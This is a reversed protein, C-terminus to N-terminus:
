MLDRSALKRVMLLAMGWAIAGGVALGALSAWIGYSRVLTLSGGVLHIGGLNLLVIVLMLVAMVLLTLRMYIKGAMGMEMYMFGAGGALSFGLWLVAAQVFETGTALHELRVPLYLAAFYCLAMPLLTILFVLYRAAVIEKDTVPLKRYFALKRSFADTWYHSLYEKTFAFGLTSTMSVTVLDAATDRIIRIAGEMLDPDNRGLYMIGTVAGLFAFLIGTLFAPLLLKRTEQKVLMYVYGKPM